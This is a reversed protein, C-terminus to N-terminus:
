VNFILLPEVDGFDGGVNSVHIVEGRPMKLGGDPRARTEKGTYFLLFSM